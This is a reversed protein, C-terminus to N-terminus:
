YKNNSLKEIIARVLHVCKRLRESEEIPNHSRGIQLIVYMTYSVGIIVYHDNSSGVLCSPDRTFSRPLLKHPEKKVLIQDITKDEFAKSMSKIDSDNLVFHKSCAVTQRKKIKVMAAMAQMQNTSGQGLNSGASGHNTQNTSGQGENVLTHSTLHKIWPTWVNDTWPQPYYDLMGLM